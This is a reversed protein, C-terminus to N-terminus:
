GLPKRYVTSTSTPRFGLSEYLHFAGQPNEFDVGLTASTMGRERLVHLSAVVLARALGRRRWPRRVAVSALLGRRYDHLKNEHENIENIVHGAVEDRDWAVQWLSPDFTPYSIFRQFEEESADVWGWHDRFAEADAEFVARAHAATAPRLDLGPPLPADPIDDLTPRVMDHFSRIRRYGEQELLVHGGPDDGNIFTELWQQRGPGDNAALERRRRENAHLLARGIGRRRVAPDVQCIGIYTRAGDTTDEWWTRTYAVLRGGMEAMLFDREFDWKTGNEYDIALEEGTVAYDIGDAARAAMIVRAMEGYDHPRRLRRFRLGPIAPAGPLDISDDPAVTSGTRHNVASV